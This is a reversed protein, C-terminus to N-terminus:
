KGVMAWSALLYGGLPAAFVFAKFVSLGAVRWLYAFLAIWSTLSLALLLQPRM